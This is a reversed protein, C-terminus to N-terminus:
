RKKQQKTNYPWGTLFLIGFIILVSTSSVGVALARSGAIVFFFLDLALALVIFGTGLLRRTRIDVQKM